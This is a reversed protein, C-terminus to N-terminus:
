IQAPHSNLSEVGKDRQPSTVQSERRENQERILQNIQPTNMSNNGIPINNRCGQQYCQNVGNNTNPVNNSCGQQCSQNTNTNPSSNSCVQQCSQNGCNNNSSNNNRYPSFRWGNNRPRWSQSSNRSNKWWHPTNNNFNGRHFSMNNIRPNKNFNSNRSWNGSQANRQFRNNRDPSGQQKFNNYNPNNNNYYNNPRRFNGSDGGTQSQPSIQAREGPFKNSETKNVSQSESQPNDVARSKSNVAPQLDRLLQLMEKADKPRTVVLAARIDSPFHRALSSFLESQQFEPQLHKAKENMMIFYDVYSGHKRSDYKGNVIELRVSNQRSNSWFHQIFMDKFERYTTHPTLQLESWWLANSTLSNKLISIKLREPVGRLIFFQELEKLYRLPHDTESGSFRPLKVENFSFNQLGEQQEQPIVNRSLMHYESSNQEAAPENNDLHVIPIQNDDSNNSSTSPKDVINRIGELTSNVRENNRETERTQNRVNNESMTVRKNVVELQSTMEILKTELVSLQGSNTCLRENITTITNETRNRNERLERRVSEVESRVNEEVVIMNHGIEEQIHNINKELEERVQINNVNIRENVENIQDQVQQQLRRAGREISTELKSVQNTLNELITEKMKENLEQMEQKNTKEHNQINNNLQRIEHMMKNFMSLIPDTNTSHQKNQSSESENHDLPTITNVQEAAAGYEQDKEGHERLSDCTEDQRQEFNDTEERGEMTINGSRLRM